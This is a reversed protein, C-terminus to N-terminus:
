SSPSRSSTSGHAAIMRDIAAELPGLDNQYIAWLVAISTHHYAHRLHNGLDEVGRWNISPGLAQKWETPINRAAEGIVLLQYSLGGSLFSNAEVTEITLGGVGARAAAIADKIHHLRDVPGTAM